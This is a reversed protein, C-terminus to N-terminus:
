WFGHQLVLRTRVELRPDMAVAQSAVARALHTKPPSSAAAQAGSQERQQRSLVSSALCCLSSAKAQARSPSQGQLPGRRRRPTAQPDGPPRQGLLRSAGQGQALVVGGGARSSHAPRSSGRSAAKTRANPRASGQARCFCM